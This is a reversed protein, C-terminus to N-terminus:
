QVPQGMQFKETPDAVPVMQIPGAVSSGNAVYSYYLSPSARLARVAVHAPVFFAPELGSASAAQLAPGPVVSVLGHALDLGQAPKPEYVITSAAFNGGCMKAFAKYKVLQAQADLQAPLATDQDTAEKRFASSVLLACVVAGAVLGLMFGRWYAPNKM